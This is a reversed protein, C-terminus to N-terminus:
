PPEIYTLNNCLLTSQHLAKDTDPNRKTTCHEILLPKFITVISIM